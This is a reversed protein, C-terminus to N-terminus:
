RTGIGVTFMVFSSTSTGQGSDIMQIMLDAGVSVLLSGGPQFEYGVGLGSGFGSATNTGTTTGEIVSAGVGIGAKAFFRYDRFPYAQAIAMLNGRGREIGESRSGWILAEGGIRLWRNLTGGIKFDFAGGFNTLGAVPEDLQWGAGLGLGFWFGGGENQAKLNPSTILVGALALGAVISTRRHM